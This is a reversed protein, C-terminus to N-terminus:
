FLFCTFPFLKNDCFYTNNKTKIKTTPQRSKILPFSHIIKRSNIEISFILTREDDDDETKKIRHYM